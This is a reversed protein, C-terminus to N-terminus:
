RQKSMLVMEEKKKMKICWFYPFIYEGYEYIAKNKDMDVHVYNKDIFFKLSSLM